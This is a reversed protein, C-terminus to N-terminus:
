FYFARLFRLEELSKVQSSDNLNILINLMFILLILVFIVKFIIPILNLKIADIWKGWYLKKV